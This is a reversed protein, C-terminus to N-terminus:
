AQPVDFLTLIGLNTLYAQRMNTPHYHATINNFMRESRVEPPDQQPRLHLWGSVLARPIDIATDESAQLLSV